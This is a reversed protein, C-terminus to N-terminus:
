NKTILERYLYKKQMSEYPHYIYYAYGDKIQINEVYKYKLKYNNEVAGNYTNIKDLSFYGEKANISYIEDLGDDKLLLKKWKQESNEHYSIGISDIKEGFENIKLIQDTYHDFILVTDDVVFLPAYLPEYYMTNTFNVMLAAVDQKEMGFKNALNRAKVKDKPQMFYYQMRYLRSLEEDKVHYVKKSIRIDQDYLYYNFKPFFWQYDTYAIKNDLSDLFPKLITNFSDIPLGVLGLRNRKFTLQYAHEDGLAYVRNKYDCYLENVRSPIELRAKLNQNRDVWIISSGKKLTKEYTLFIFDNGYFEFDSISYKQNGHIKEPKRNAIINISQILQAEKRLQVNLRITDIGKTLKVIKSISEYGVFSFHLIVEEKNKFKLKYFGEKSATTGKTSNDVLITGKHLPTSNVSDTLYGIIMNSQSQSLVFCFMFNFIMLARM